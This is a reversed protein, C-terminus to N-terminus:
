HAISYLSPTLTLGDNEDHQPEAWWRVTLLLLHPFTHVSLNSHHITDM